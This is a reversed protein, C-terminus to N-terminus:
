WINENNTFPTNILEQKISWNMQKEFLDKFRQRAKIIGQLSM